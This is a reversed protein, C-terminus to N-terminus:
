RWGGLPKYGHKGTQGDQSPVGDQCANSYWCPTIAGAIVRQGEEYGTVASGLKEIIGVPEHGVVLGPAGPYEGKLIHPDTGCSTTTTIRILADNPGIDPVKREQLEIRRPKVFVAAKMTGAMVFRGPRSTGRSGAWPRATLRKERAGRSGASSS